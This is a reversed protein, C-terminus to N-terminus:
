RSLVLLKSSIRLKARQASELHISFRLRGSEFFFQAIGGVKNFGDIDSITLVPADRLGVLLTAARSAVVDTVYLVRCARGPGATAARLVVIDRGEVQRGKVVREIEDGIAADGVVCIVFPESAPLEVPWETFRVFNFIFAAKLASETAEQASAMTPMMLLLVVSVRALSMVVLRTRHM